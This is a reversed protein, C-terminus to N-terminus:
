KVRFYSNGRDDVACEEFYKDRYEYLSMDTGQEKNVQKLEANIDKQTFLPDKVVVWGDADVALANNPKWLIM